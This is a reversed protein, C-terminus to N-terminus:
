MGDVAVIGKAWILHDSADVQWWVNAWMPIGSSRLPFGGHQEFFAHRISSDGVCAGLMGFGLKQLQDTMLKAESGPPFEHELRRGFEPSWAMPSRVSIRRRSAAEQETAPPCVTTSGGVSGLGQLLMPLPPEPVVTVITVVKVGVMLMLAFFVLGIVWRPRLRQMKM